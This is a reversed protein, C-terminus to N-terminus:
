IGIPTPRREAPEPKKRETVAAQAAAPNPALAAATLRGRERSWAQRERYHLVKDVTM